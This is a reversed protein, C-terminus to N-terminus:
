PSWLVYTPVGFLAGILAWLGVFVYDGMVLGLFFSAARQHARVGFAKLIVWKVLWGLFVSFWFDALGGWTAATMVYGIPHFPWWMLRHRLFYLLWTTGAGIFMSQTAGSNPGTPNKLWRELRQGFVEHGIGVIYGHVSLAGVKYMLHLFAWFSALTGVITAFMMVWVLRRSNIQAREAIKFAELQNPMPHSVNLRNLWYYFSMITLNSTGIFRPGFAVILLQAPDLALIEHSPPGFEARVRTVGIAMLFFVVSFGFVGWPTMGAQLSFLTLGLLGLLFGVLARRYSMPEQSDDVRAKPNLFKRWVDSLHRRTGWLGLIGVALWAGGARESMYLEGQGLMGARVVREAKGFIYFLWASMSIDLPVFFTLGIIFPYASLSVWGAANWPKERFFRSISYYNLQVAPIQPFLHHLGALAEFFGAVGFGIWMLGNKYFGDRGQAMYLPLQVIPYALKERETWQARIMTNLCILTFWIITVFGTWVIIPVLWGRLYGIVYFTSDGEFYDDLADQQPTFWEPIYRWFLAAWENEPTAFRFPHALAGILFTMMTHGGLTSVMVVMIYAVLIEQPTLARRPAFRKLPANIVVLVFLSFVANFFLSVFNLLFQPNILEAAYALWYANWICLLSGIVLVRLTIGSAPQRSKRM